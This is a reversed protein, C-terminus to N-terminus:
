PTIMRIESAESFLRDPEDDHSTISTVVGFCEALYFHNRRTTVILGVTRTLQSNVRMVEFDALPTNMMGQVDVESQHTEFYYAVGLPYLGTITSTSEWSYGIKLPFSMIIAPPTYTLETKLHPEESESVIGRLLLQTQTVEYVGLLAEEGAIPAVYTAEPFTPAFWQDDIIELRVSIQREDMLSPILDWDEGRTDVLVDNAKLYNQTVGPLVPVEMLDIQDNHDPWCNEPEEGMDSGEELSQDIRASMDPELRGMDESMGRDLQGASVEADRGELSGGLEHDTEEGGASADRDDGGEPLVDSDLEASSDQPSLCVGTSTCVGSPCDAGFRCEKSENFCGILLLGLCLSLGLIDLHISFSGRFDVSEGNM